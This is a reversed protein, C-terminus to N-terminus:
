DPEAGQESFPNKSSVGEYLAVSVGEPSLM